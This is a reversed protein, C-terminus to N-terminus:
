LLNEGVLGISRLLLPLALWLAPRYLRGYHLGLSTNVSSCIDAPELWRFAVSCCCSAAWVSWDGPWGCLLWQSARVVQFAVSCCCSAAWMSWDGPWGGLLWQSARVVQFAVSCCCWAM